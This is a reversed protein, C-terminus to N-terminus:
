KVKEKDKLKWLRQEAADIRNDLGDHEWLTSDHYSKRASDVAHVHEEFADIAEKLQSRVAELKERLEGYSYYGDRGSTDVDYTRRGAESIDLFQKLEEKILNRFHTETLKM